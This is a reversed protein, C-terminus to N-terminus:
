RTSVSCIFTSNPTQYVNTDFVFKYEIVDIKMSQRRRSMQTTGVDLTEFIRRFYEMHKLATCSLELWWM